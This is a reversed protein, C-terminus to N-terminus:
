GSTESKFDGNGINENPINPIDFVINEIYAM